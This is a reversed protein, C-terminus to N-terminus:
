TKVYLKSYNRNQFKDVEAKQLNKEFTDKFINKLIGDFMASFTILITLEKVSFLIIATIKKKKLIFFLDGEFKSALIAYIENIRGKAPLHVLETKSM